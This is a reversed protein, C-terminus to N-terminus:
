FKSQSLKEVKNLHEPLFINKFIVGQKLNLTGLNSVWSQRKNASTKYGFHYM